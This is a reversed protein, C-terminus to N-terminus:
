MMILFHHFLVIWITDVLWFHVSAGIVIWITRLVKFYWCGASAYSLFNEFLSILLHCHTSFWSSLCFFNLTVFQLAGFHFFVWLNVNLSLQLSVALFLDWDCSVYSISIQTIRVMAALERLNGKRAQVIASLPLGISISCDVFHCHTSACNEM